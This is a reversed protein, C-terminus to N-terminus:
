FALAGCARAVHGDDREPGTMVRVFVELGGGATRPAPRECVRHVCASVATSAAAAAAAAERWRDVAANAEVCRKAAEREGTLSDSRSCVSSAGLYASCRPEYLSYMMMPAPGPPMCSPAKISSPPPEISPAAVGEQRECM